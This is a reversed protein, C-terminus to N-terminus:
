GRRDPATGDGMGISHKMPVELIRDYSEEIKKRVEDLEAKKESIRQTRRVLSTSAEEMPTGDNTELSELEMIENEIEARRDELAQLAPIDRVGRRILEEGDVGSRDLARLLAKRLRGAQLANKGLVFEVVDGKSSTVLLGPANEANVYPNDRPLVSTVDVRVVHFFKLLLAEEWGGTRGEFYLINLAMCGSVGQLMHKPIKKPDTEETSVAFYL